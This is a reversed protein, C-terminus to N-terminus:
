FKNISYVACKTYLDAGNRIEDLAIIEIPFCVRKFKQQYSERIDSFGSLFAGESIVSVRKTVLDFRYLQKDMAEPVEAAIEAKVIKATELSRTKGDAYFASISGVSSCDRVIRLLQKAGIRPFHVIDGSALNRAPIKQIM